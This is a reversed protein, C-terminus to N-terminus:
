KNITVARLQSALIARQMLLDASHAPKSQLKIDIEEINAQLIAARQQMGEKYQFSNKIVAHEVSTSGIIGVSRLLAGLLFLSVVVIVLWKFLGIPGSELDNWVKDWNM